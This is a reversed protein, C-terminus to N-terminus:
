RKVQVYQVIKDGKGKTFRSLDMPEETLGQTHHARARARVCVCVCVCVCLCATLGQSTTPPPSHSPYLAIVFRPVAM